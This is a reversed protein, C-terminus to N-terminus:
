RYLRLGTLGPREGNESSTKCVASRWGSEKYVKEVKNCIHKPYEGCVVISYSDQGKESAKLEEEFLGILEKLLISDDINMQEPTTVEM